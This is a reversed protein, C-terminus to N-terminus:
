YKKVARDVDQLIKLTEELQDIRLMSAGDSPANDPDQHTELFIGAINNAIAAKALPLVFKREGGSQEGLGGPKQVAHTADFIVPYGTEEQMIVLSRMDVVLNNYGFCSGRETLLINENGSEVAKQTINKVDWPALFQGKKINLVKGTKAAGVILDTQRCLFAPIQIIDVFEAVEQCQWTEHVDTLIDCSFQEKVEQLIKLGATMGVSRKGHISTRNAKDYSSKYVFNIKLKSAIEMIKEAMMMAHDRSEIQCPGAILTFPLDNAIDFNKLAITKNIM